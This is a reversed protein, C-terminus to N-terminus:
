ESVSIFREANPMGSSLSVRIPLAQLAEEMETTTFHHRVVLAKLTGNAPLSLIARAGDDSFTGYSLDLTEIRKALPSNVFVGAIEDTFECNRLALTSLKPFLDGAFLPQLDEIQCTGGYGGSGLWLELHELNPFHGKLISRVVNVDLGGSEIALGRLNIHHPKSIKLNEGGRVRLLELTPFGALLPSIDGLEIWSIESEEQIVDGFFLAALKPLRDRHNVLQAMVDIAGDSMVDSWAGVVIGVAEAAAGTELLQDLSEEFSGGDWDMALRYVVQGDEAVEADLVQVPRGIFTAAHQSTPHQELGSHFTQIDLSTTTRSDDAEPEFDLEPFIEEIAKPKPLRRVVMKEGPKFPNSAFQHGDENVERYGEALKAAILSEAEQEAADSSACSSTQSEGPEGENGQSITITEGEVQINWFGNSDGLFKGPNLLFYRPDM